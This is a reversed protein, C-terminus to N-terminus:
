CLLHQRLLPRRGQGWFLEGGETVFTPVGCAGAALADRLTKEYSDLVLASNAMAALAVPDIGVSRAIESLGDADVSQGRAFLAEYLARAFREVGGLQGAAVCATALKRWDADAAPDTFRGPGFYFEVTM